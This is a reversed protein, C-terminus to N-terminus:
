ERTSLTFGDGKYVVTPSYVIVRTAFKSKCKPCVKSKAESGTDLDETRLVLDYKTQCQQCKYTYTPMLNVGIILSEIPICHTNAMKPM